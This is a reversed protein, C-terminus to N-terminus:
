PKYAKLSLQSGYPIPIYKTSTPSIDNKVVNGSTWMIIAAGGSAIAAGGVVATAWAGWGVFPVVLATSTVVGV